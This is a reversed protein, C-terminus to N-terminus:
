APIRHYPETKWDTCAGRACLEWKLLGHLRRGTGSLVGGGVGAVM